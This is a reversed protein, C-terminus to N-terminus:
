HFPRGLHFKASSLDALDELILDGVVLAANLDGLGSGHESDTVTDGADVAQTVSDSTLEDLEGHAHGPHDEVKLFVVDSDRNETLVALDALAVCDLTRPADNFHGNTIRQKTAHDIRQTTGHVTAGLDALFVGSADLDLRGADDNTLANM